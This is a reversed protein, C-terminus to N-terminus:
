GKEGAGERRGVIGSTFNEADAYPFDGYVQYIM